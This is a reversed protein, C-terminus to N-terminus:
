MAHHHEDMSVAPCGDVCASIVIGIILVQRDAKAMKTNGSRMPLVFPGFFVFAFLFLLFVVVVIVIVVVVIGIAECYASDTRM